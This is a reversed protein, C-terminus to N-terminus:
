LITKIVICNDENAKTFILSNDTFFLHSIMPDGRSCRFSSIDGRNQARCVSSIFFPSLPDGRDLGKTPKITRCVKGNISVSYTVSSICRMVLNIWKESFGLKVMMGELFNWEVRDYAKSIDLKIAMSGRKRKRRKLRHICEFEIITNDSILRGPIFACQTESIVESLVHKLRSTIAKAIAKYILNCQSIPRYDIIKEPSQTMPILAIITKNM